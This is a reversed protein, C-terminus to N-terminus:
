SCIRCSAFAARSSSTSIRTTSAVAFKSTLRNARLAKRAGGIWNSTFWIATGRTFAGFNTPNRFYAVNEGERIDTNNVAETIARWTYYAILNVNTRWWPLPQSAANYGTSSSLFANLDSLDAPQGAGQSGLRNNGGQLLFLNGDPLNHEDKFQQDFEEFRLYLGWLDGAYQSAPNTELTDDIVRFQVYAPTPAAVGALNYLRFALGEDLGALGRNWAAWPETLGSFKITERRTNLSKGRDDPFDFWHGRNFRFKWKNKGTVFTSNQGAVRFGVHDYVEGDVVVTGKFNYLGNDYASNYQSNSVDSANAILQFPRVQRMINTGFVAPANSAPNVAGSWVPVGDYVFYAFNPSPDDAYPVRIANGQPDSATIRYRILRRHTQVNGPVQATFISDGAVVDGAIGDDHMPIPIWTNTYAASALRIYNGPDVVQYELTVNQVGDPDTVKATITMVDATSPQKPAHSVQRVHPPVNATAVSNRTGPTPLASRWSGGLNHDLGENLLQMSCGPPDGVTPWPFGLGYSVSDVVAGTPDSLDLTEGESNLGGAWPGLAAVGFQSQLTSPNDAVVLYGKPSIFTGAPFLFEVGKTFAWGSLDVATTLPNYLEVFEGPVSKSNLPNNNIENIVVRPWLLGSSNDGGPTPTIFFVNNTSALREASLTVSLRFDIDNSVINLGQVALANSSGPMLLPLFASLDFNETTSATNTAASNWAPSIPANRRAVETGNLSAVFGDDYTTGLLLSSYNLANTVSFHVRFYATANTNRMTQLNIPFSANPLVQFKFTGAAYQAVMADANVPFASTNDGWRSRGVFQVAAGGTNLTLPPLPPNDGAGNGNRENANFGYAVITYAGNTLTVPVPLPKFRNGNELTGASTNTFTQTALVAIGTDDAPDDPTGNDNRQWLKVTIVTDSALGDSLDDFCGLDTIQVPSSVNFDMGLAGGYGQNGATNQPTSYAIM